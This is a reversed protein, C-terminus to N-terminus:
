LAPATAFNTSEDVIHTLLLYEETLIIKLSAAREADVSEVIKTTVRWKRGM